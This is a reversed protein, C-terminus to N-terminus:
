FKTGSRTSLVKGSIGSVTHLKPLFRVDPINQGSRFRTGQPHSNPHVGGRASLIVDKRFSVDPTRTRENFLSFLFHTDIPEVTDVILRDPRFDQGNVGTSPPVGDVLHIGSSLYEHRHGVGRSDRDKDGGFSPGSSVLFPIPDRTRGNLSPNRVSPPGTM